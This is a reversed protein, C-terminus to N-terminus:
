KLLIQRKITNDHTANEFYYIDKELVGMYPVSSDDKYLEYGIMMDTFFMFDAQTTSIEFLGFEESYWVSQIDSYPLKLNYLTGGINLVAVSNADYLCDTVSETVDTLRAGIMSNFYVMKAIHLRYRNELNVMQINHAEGIKDNSYLMMAVDEMIRGMIFDLAISHYKGLFQKATGNDRM